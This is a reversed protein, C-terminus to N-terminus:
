PGAKGSIEYNNGTYVNGHKEQMPQEEQVARTKITFADHDDSIDPIM